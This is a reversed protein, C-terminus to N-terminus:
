VIRMVREQPMRRQRRRRYPTETEEKAAWSWEFYVTVEYTGNSFGKAIGRSRYWRCTWAQAATPFLRGPKISTRGGNTVGLSQVQGVMSLLLHYFEPIYSSHAQSTGPAMVIERLKPIVNYKVQRNDRIRSEVTVWNCWNIPNRSIYEFLICTLLPVDPTGWGPWVLGLCCKRLHM